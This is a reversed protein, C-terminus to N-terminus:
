KRGNVVGLSGFNRVGIKGQLAKRAMKAGAYGQPLGRFQHKDSQMFAGSDGYLFARRRQRSHPKGSIGQVVPISNSAATLMASAAAALLSKLRPTGM